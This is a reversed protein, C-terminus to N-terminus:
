FQDRMSEPAPGPPQRAIWYSSSERRRLRLPDKGLARMLLGVPTIVLYFLLALLIPSVVKSLLLGLKQWVRNLPHLTASRSLALALFVAALAVAWWRVSSSPRHLAPLVAVLAFFAAIVLGFARDSSGKMEPARSFDEHV